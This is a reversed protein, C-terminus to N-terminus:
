SEFFGTKSKAKRILSNLHKELLIPSNRAWVWHSDDKAAVYYGIRFRIPPKKGSESFDIKQLVLKRNSSATQPVCDVVCGRLRQGSDDTYRVRKGKCSLKRM